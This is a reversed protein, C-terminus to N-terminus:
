PKTRFVAGGILGGIAGFVIEVLVGCLNILIDPAEAPIQVGSDAPLFAKYSNVLAAGGAWGVFSLLFGIVGAVLGVGIGIVVANALTVAGTQRKYIWVALIASAWFPACLLCNALNLVPVNAFIVSAAAGILVAITLNKTDM